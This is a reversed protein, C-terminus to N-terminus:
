QFVDLEKPFEVPRGDTIDSVAQIPLYNGLSGTAIKWRMRYKLINKVLYERWGDFKHRAM